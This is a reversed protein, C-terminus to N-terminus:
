KRGFQKTLRGIPILTFLRMWKRRTLFLLALLLALGVWYPNLFRSIFEIITQGFFTIFGVVITFTYTMTLIGYIAFVREERNFHERRFLKRFLQGTRIFNMSRKRLNPMELLDMLIYYGDWKLLPNLNMISDLITLFAFQYAYGNLVSSPSFLALISATGGLIFGTYPGGWSVMIRPFRKEMWIDTSDVYFALMGYYIMAGSKRIDRGYHKCTFAHGGEHIILAVTRAVYLGIVGLTISSTGGKVISYQGSALLYIFVPLGTVSLLIYMVQAPKSYLYKVGGQYVRTIYRDMNRIPFERQLFTQGIQKLWYGIGRGSMNRRLQDYVNMQQVSLFNGTELKGLLDVLISIDLSGYKTMYAVAIDQITNEGSMLNWLFYQNENLRLYSGQRLNKLVYYVEGQATTFKKLAYGLQRTPRMQTFDPKGSAQEWLSYEPKNLIITEEGVEQWLEPMDEQSLMLTEDSVDSWVNSITGDLILTEDLAESWVGEAASEPVMTEDGLQQWFGGPHSTLESWINLQSSISAPPLKALQDNMNQWVGGGSKDATTLRNWIGKAPQPM